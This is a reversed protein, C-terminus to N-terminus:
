FFSPDKKGKAVKSNRERSTRREKIWGENGLCDALVNQRITPVERDINGKM